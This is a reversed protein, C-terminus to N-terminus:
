TATLPVADRSKAGVMEAVNRLQADVARRGSKALGALYVKAPSSGKKPVKKVLIPLNRM